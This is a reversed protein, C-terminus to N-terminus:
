DTWKGIAFELFRDVDDNPCGTKRKLEKCADTIKNFCDKVDENAEIADFMQKDTFTMNLPPM